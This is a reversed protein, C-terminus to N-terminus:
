ALSRSGAPLQYGQRDGFAMGSAAADRFPGYMCSAFKAAYSMVAVRSLLGEGRLAAKIGGIRGDMMDSPAIVHAGARAFALSMSCLRSVSQENDIAFEGSGLTALVGCHGHDTYGCLCVDCMILLDPYRARLLRIARCVVSDDADAGSGRSDKLSKDPQVGFLLVARLGAAVPVDLAKPLLDVSWRYQGDMNSLPEQVGSGPVLFLPWVYSATQPLSSAEGSTWARLVPHSYSAHLHSTIPVSFSSSSM